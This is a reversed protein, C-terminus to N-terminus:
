RCFNSLQNADSKIYCFGDIIPALNKQAIPTQNYTAKSLVLGSPFVGSTRAKITIEKESPMVIIPITWTTRHNPLSISYQQAIYTSEIDLLYRSLKKTGPIISEASYNIDLSYVIPQNTTNGPLTITNNKIDITKKQPSTEPNDKLKWLYHSDNETVLEYHTFLHQYFNWHSSWLWEEFVFYSPKLTIAYYPKTEIFQQEYADRRTDGLAHIIYDEGGKSPNFKQGSLITEYISTYTSWVTKDPDIYPRFSDVSAKWGDSAVFYDSENVAKKAMKLVPITRFDQVTTQATKTGNIALIIVIGSLVAYLAIKKYRSSTEKRQVVSWTDTDFLLLVATAISILAAMRQFSILQATPQYYGGITLVFALFGYIYMFALTHRYRQLKPSKIIICLTVAGLSLVSWIPIMLPEFLLPLLNGWNLNNQPEAGFYWGQDSPVDFFAYQIAALPHGQTFLTFILMAISVIALGKLALFLIPKIVNALSNNRLIIIFQTIAYALIAAAGQETGFLLSASLLLIAIVENANIEFSKIKLKRPTEWLLAAAILIPFTGRLGLLSNGPWFVASILSITILTFIALAIISKKLNRFFAYFFVFSSILFIAPSVLWKAVEAAFVGQGLLSFLPLHLLPIGVGHFFPFDLGIIQGDTIRRLPNYLQFTGNAAYTTM